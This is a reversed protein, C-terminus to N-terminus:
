PRRIFKVEHCWIMSGGGFDVLYPSSTDDEDILHIRGVMGRYKARSINSKVCEVEDGVKVEIVLEHEKKAAIPQIDIGISKGADILEGKAKEAANWANNAEEQLRLAHFKSNRYDAALQEITSKIEVAQVPEPNAQELKHLRYAIIDARCDDHQWYSCSSDRTGIDIMEGAKLNRSIEGDRYKVDIIVGKSVPCEGGNWEIWGDADPDPYLHFYEARSLITQHWNKVLKNANCVHKCINSDSEYVDRCMWETYGAKIEPKDGGEFLVVSNCGFVGSKDQTAWESHEQWGGNESIIRALEQKSKSIKM